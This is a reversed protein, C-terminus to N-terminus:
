GFNYKFVTVARGKSESVFSTLKGLKEFLYSVNIQLIRIFNKKYLHFEYLVPNAM